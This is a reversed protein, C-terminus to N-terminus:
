CLLCCRPWGCIYKKIVQFLSCPLPDFYSKVHLLYVKEVLRTLGKQFYITNIKVQSVLSVDDNFFFFFFFVLM